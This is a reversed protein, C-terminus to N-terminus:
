AHSKLEASSCVTCQFVGNSNLVKGILLNDDRASLSRGNVVLTAQTCKMRRCALQRLDSVQMHVMGQHVRYQGLNVGLSSTM